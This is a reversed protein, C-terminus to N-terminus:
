LAKDSCRLDEEAGKKEELILKRKCLESLSLSTCAPERLLLNLILAARAQALRDTRYKIVAPDDEDDINDSFVESPGHDEDADDESLILQALSVKQERRSTKQMPGKTARPLFDAKLSTFYENEGRKRRQVSYELDILLSLDDFGFDNYGDNGIVKFVNGLLSLKQLVSRKLCLLHLFIYSLM